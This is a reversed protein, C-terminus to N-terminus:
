GLREWHVIKEVQLKFPTMTMSSPTPFLMLPLVKSKGLPLPTISLMNAQQGPPGPKIGATLLLLTCYKSPKREALPPLFFLALCLLKRGWTTDVELWTMLPGFFM